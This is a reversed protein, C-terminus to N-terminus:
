SVLDVEFGEYMNTNVNVKSFGDQNPMVGCRLAGRDNIISLTESGLFATPASTSPPSSPSSSPSTTSPPATILPTPPRQTPPETPPETPSKPEFPTSPSTTAELQPLPPITPPSTAANGTPPSTVVTDLDPVLGGGNAASGPGVTFVWVLIGVLIFLFITVVILVWQTCSLKLSREKGGQVHDVHRHTPESPLTQPQVNSSAPTAEEEGSRPIGLAPNDESIPENEKPTVEQHGSSAFSNNGMSPADKYTGSRPPEPAPEGMVVALSSKPKKAMMRDSGEPPTPANRRRPTTIDDDDEGPIFPTGLSAGVAAPPSHSQDDSNISPTTSTHGGGSEVDRFPYM